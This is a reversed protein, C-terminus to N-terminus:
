AFFLTLKTVFDTSTVESHAALTLYDTETVVTVLLAGSSYMVVSSPSIASRSRRMSAMRVSSPELWDSFAANLCSILARLFARRAEAPRVSEGASGGGPGMGAGGRAVRVVVLEESTVGFVWFSRGDDGRRAADAALANQPPLAAKPPTVGTCVVSIGSFKTCGSALTLDSAPARLYGNSSEPFAPKGPLAKM